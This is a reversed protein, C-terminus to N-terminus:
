KLVRVIEALLVDLSNHFDVQVRNPLSEKERAPLHLLANAISRSSDELYQMSKKFSKGDRGGYNSSVETFSKFGFIPPVHDLIARTLMAVAFFCENAYCINLEECLRILKILDFSSSTIGRLEDIRSLDVFYKGARTNSVKDEPEQQGSKAEEVVMQAFSKFAIGIARAERENPYCGDIFNVKTLTGHGREYAVIVAFGRINEQEPSWLMVRWRRVPHFVADPPPPTFMDDDPEEDTERFLLSEGNDSTWPKGGYRKELRLMVARFDEITSPFIETKVIEVM